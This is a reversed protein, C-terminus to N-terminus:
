VLWCAATIAVSCCGPARWNRLNSASKGTPLVVRHPDGEGAGELFQPQGDRGLLCRAAIAGVPDASATDVLALEAWLADPLQTIPMGAPCSALYAVIEAREAGSDSVVIEAPSDCRQQYAAIPHM